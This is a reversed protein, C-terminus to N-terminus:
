PRRILNRIVHRDIPGHASLFRDRDQLMREALAKVFEGHVNSADLEAAVTELWAQLHTDPGGKLAELTPGGSDDGGLSAQLAAEIWAIAEEMRLESGDLKGDSKM